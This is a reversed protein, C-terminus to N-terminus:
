GDADPPTVRVRATRADADMLLMARTLTPGYIEGEGREIM